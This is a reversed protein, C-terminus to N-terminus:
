ISETSFSILRTIMLEKNTTTPVCHRKNLTGIGGGVGLFERECENGIGCGAPEKYHSNVQRVWEINVM